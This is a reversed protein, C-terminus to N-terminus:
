ERPHGRPTDKEEDTPPFHVNLSASMTLGTDTSQAHWSPPEPHSPLDRLKEMWKGMLLGHLIRHITGLTLFPKSFGFSAYVTPSPPIFIIDGFHSVIEKFTLSKM